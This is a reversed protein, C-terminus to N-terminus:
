AATKGKLKYVWAMVEAVATYFEMPVQQGVEAKDFLARALAVNEFMPIDNEQALKKIRQATLDKGKAVVMPADHGKEPEYLLAIAFHTPNTVVVSAQPVQEMMRRRSMEMQLQRIRQKVKPDGEMQKHEEKLDQHSMKLKKEHEYRQYGYDLVALVLLALAVRLFIDYVSSLIFNWIAMITTDALAVIVTYNGRITAYAIYGIVTIKLLNKALDVLKRLTFMQKLGKLPNIKSFKPQIPKLTLLLGIQIVNAIVGAIMIAGAFPLVIKVLRWIATQAIEFLGQMTMDTMASFMFCELLGAKLEELMWPGVLRLLFIATLLVLVSNVETSKAVNGEERADKRKKASPAETKEQASDEAM